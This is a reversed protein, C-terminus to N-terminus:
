WGILKSKKNEGKGVIRNPNNIHGCNSCKYYKAKGAFIVKMQHSCNFCKKKQRM